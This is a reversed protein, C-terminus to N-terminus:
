KRNMRLSQLQAALSDYDTLKPHVHSSKKTNEERALMNDSSGSTESIGSAHTLRSPLEASSKSNEDLSTKAVSKASHPQEHHAEWVLSSSETHVELREVDYSKGIQKQPEQRESAYFKGNPKQTEQTKTDFSTM